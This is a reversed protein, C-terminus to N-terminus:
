ASEPRATGGQAPRLRRRHSNKLEAIGMQEGIGGTTAMAPRGHGQEAVPETLGEALEAAM